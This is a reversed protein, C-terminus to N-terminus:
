VTENITVCLMRPCVFGMGVAGNMKRVIQLCLFLTFLLDCFFLSSFKLLSILWYALLAGMTSM